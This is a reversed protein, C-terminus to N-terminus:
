FLINVPIKLPIPSPPPKNKIGIYLDNPQLEIWAVAVHEKVINEPDRKFTIWPLINPIIEKSSKETNNVM